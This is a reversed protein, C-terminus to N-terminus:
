SIIQITGKFCTWSSVRDRTKWLYLVRADDGFRHEGSADDTGSFVSIQRRELMDLCTLEHQTSPVMARMLSVYSDGGLLIMLLM